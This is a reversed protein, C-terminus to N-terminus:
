RRACACDVLAAAASDLAQRGGSAGGPVSDDVFAFALLRGDPRSAYGALSAVGTLTGTKARVVGRGPASDAAAFRARLSGTAGAVPLGSAMSGFGGGATHRLLDVLTGPTVRNKRSLGSADVFRDGETSVGLEGLVDQARKGVGSFSAAGGAAAAALRGLAEAFDNDSEGLMREVLVGITPSDVSALPVSGSRARLHKPQGRVKVGASELEDVFLEAAAQAPDTTRRERDPDVRGQDVQLASVPAVVGAAPFSAPWSEHMAPGTFLSDDYGATVGQVGQEDLAKATLEALRKVSAPRLSTGARGVRSGSSALSPDGAGVLVVRPPDAQPDLIVTRTSLVADPGLADLVSVATVLKMTSAPAVPEDSTALLVDGTAVDVVRAPTRGSGLSGGSLHPVVAKRVLRPDLPAGAGPDSAKPSTSSGPSQVGASTGSAQTPTTSAEAPDDGPELGGSLPVLVPPASLAAADSPVRPGPIVGALALLLGGILLHAM